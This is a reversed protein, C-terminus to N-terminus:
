AAAVFFVYAFDEPHDRRVAIEARAERLVPHDAGHRKELTAARKELPGYYNDWAADCLEVDGLLTLDAAAIKARVGAADTMAPYEAWNAASVPDPADTLWVAESFALRGGPRLLPKWAALATEVGISYIAGESWILDFSAPSFPPDAMDAEIATFRDAFGAAAVRARAAELFPAHADLGTVRAEPLAALLTLASAGPGCGLDLVALPGSLGTLRLAARTDADDGPGERDLGSHLEWFVPDM